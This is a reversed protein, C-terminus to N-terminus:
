WGGSGGGGGGGGSGGGGGGSGSSSPPVSAATLIAIHTLSTQTLDVEGAIALDDLSDAAKKWATAEGLVVAWASYERLVGLRHADEVHRGESQALFRRFSETQLYLASGIATRSPIRGKTSIAGLWFGLIATVVVIGVASDTIADVWNVLNGNEDSIEATDLLLLAGISSAVWIWAGFVSTRKNWSRLPCHWWHKGNLEEVLAERIEKWTTAFKETYKKYVRRTTAGDPMLLDILTRDFESLEERDVLLEIDVAQENKEIGIVGAGILSSVWTSQLDSGLHENLIVKGEWPRIGKPAAFEVTAMEYLASDTVRSTPGGAVPIAAGAADAAGVTNMGRRINRSVALGATAIVVLVALYPLLGSSPPEDREPLPISIEGMREDTLLAFGSINLGVNAGLPEIIVEQGYSTDVLECGGIEGWGGVSCLPDALRFGDLIVHFRDTVPDEDPDILSYDLPWENVFALPLVYSLVFRHQGNSTVDPDGVRMEYYSGDFDTSLQSSMTDSQASIDIPIGLDTRVYRLYGRKENRGFNIDVYETVRMAGDDTPSLVITKADFDVVDKPVGLTGSSILGFVVVAFVAIPLLKWRLSMFLSYSM